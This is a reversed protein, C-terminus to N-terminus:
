KGIRVPAERCVSMSVATLVATGSCSLCFPSLFVFLFFTHFCLSLYMESMYLLLPLSTLYCSPWISLSPDIQFM